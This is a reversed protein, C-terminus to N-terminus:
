EANQASENQETVLAKGCKACFKATEKNVFGCECVIGGKEDTQQVTTQTYIPETYQTTQASQTRQMELEKLKEQLAAIEQDTGAIEGCLGECQEIHIEGNVHLNYVLTGMNLLLRNKDREKDKIQTNINAKEVIFKSGEGVANVGKNLGVVVKDFFGAM